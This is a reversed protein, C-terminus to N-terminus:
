IGTEVLKRKKAKKTVMLVLNLLARNEPDTALM